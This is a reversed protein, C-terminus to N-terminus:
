RARARGETARDSAGSWDMVGLAFKRVNKRGGPLWGGFHLYTGAKTGEEIFRSKDRSPWFTLDSHFSSTGPAFSHPQSALRHWVKSKRERRGM